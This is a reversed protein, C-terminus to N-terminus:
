NNPISPSLIKPTASNLPDSQPPVLAQILWGFASFRERHPTWSLLLVEWLWDPRQAKVDGM